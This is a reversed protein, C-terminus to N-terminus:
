DEKYWVDPGTILIERCSSDSSARSSSANALVALQQGDFLVSAEGSSFGFVCSRKETQSICLNTLDPRTRYCRRM